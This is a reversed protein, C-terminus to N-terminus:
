VKKKPPPPPPSGGKLPPAATPVTYDLDDSTALVELKLPGARQTTGDPATGNGGWVEVIMGIGGVKAWVEVTVEEGAVWHAGPYGQIYWEFTAPVFGNTLQAVGTNKGFHFAQETSCNVSPFAGTSQRIELFLHDFNPPTATQVDRIHCHLRVVVTGNCPVHFSVEAMNAPNADNALESYTNSNVQKVFPVAPPVSLTTDFITQGLIEGPISVRGYGDLERGGTGFNNRVIHCAANPWVDVALPLFANVQNGIIRNHEHNPAHTVIGGIRNGMILSKNLSVMLTDDIYNDILSSMNPQVLLGGTNAVNMRHCVNRAIKVNQGVGVLMEGTLLNNEVVCDNMAAQISVEDTFTTITAGNLDVSKNNGIYSRFLSMESYNYGPTSTPNDIIICDRLVLLTIPDVRETSYLLNDSIYLGDFSQKLPATPSHAGILGYCNQLTCYTIRLGKFHQLPITYFPAQPKQGLVVAFNFGDFSLEQIHLGSSKADDTYRGTIRFLDFPEDVGHKRTLKGSGFGCIIAEQTSRKTYQRSEKIKIEVTDTVFIEKAIVVRKGRELNGVARRLETETYVLIDDKARRTHDITHTPQRRGYM